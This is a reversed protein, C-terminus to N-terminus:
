QPTSKYYPVDFELFKSCWSRVSRQKRPSPNTIEAESNCCLSFANVAKTFKACRQCLETLKGGPLCEGEVPVANTTTSLLCLLVAVLLLSYCPLSTSMLRFMM